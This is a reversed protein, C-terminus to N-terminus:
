ITAGEGGIAPDTRSPRGSECHGAFRFVRGGGPELEVTLDYWHDSRGIDITVDVSGQPPVVIERRMEGYADAIVVKGAVGVHQGLRLVVVNSSVGVELIAAFGVCVAFRRYFGNPGHITVPENGTCAFVHSDGAGVTYHRVGAGDRVRFVAGQHGACGLRIRGDAELDAHLDYPLPRAPRSGVEQRPLVQPDPIGPPALGCSARTRAPYSATDPLAEPWVPDRRTFDFASTLDGCVARRWPTINPATVGFRVELFRLVSTHDFVQSNVWGGTIWPSILLAPVRPGLGVPVGDYVEGTLPVSSAGRAEGVAPVPPPVHDFFGDNEDYNLIFVTKAWVDPHRVFVDMLHSILVEGYGPPADPHESLATPPVIWSVQPLRGSSVDREFAEVLYRGESSNMNARNSGPVIQRACQYQWSRLDLDRFAAFSAIPNDGFNDYEQYVRWSVGAAQLREPYTEWRFPVFSARDHAMDATWNGDDVNEITQRGQDGVALGNTGSFLYLRNPNTPGFISAHYADCITFADALAYYYPIDARTFHGMTMATKRPVWINWDDWASQTGKWSHDLSALCASSTHDTDFRFPLVRGGKGDPQAFVSSGDMLREAKPDGYGRVGNLCGFYHDFSRNEQMLIVVHEVDAITGTVNHPPVAMARRLNDPLAEGAALGASCQLFRRRGLTLAM